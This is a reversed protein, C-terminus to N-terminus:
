VFKYLYNLSSALCDFPDRPCEDQEVAYWKVNIERCVEVISPWDLNGEGIAAMVQKGDVIEMDKFHVVDIRGATKKLWQVPNGGGAQVWFTDIEFGLTPSTEKLLIDLGTIGDYKQFEFNHNHYILRLGNAALEDAIASAERAFRMYGEKDKHYEPPMSGVGVYQCDWLKHENIVAKIDTKLREFSVHTACIKLELSNVLDKLFVPDVPGMGSVQVANYGMDKVKKLTKEIDGPTKTFNRLTYLQVAITNRNM